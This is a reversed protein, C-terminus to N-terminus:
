HFKFMYTSSETYLVTIWFFQLSSNLSHLSVLSSLQLYPMTVDQHTTNKCDESGGISIQNCCNSKGANSNWAIYLCTLPTSTLTFLEIIKTNTTLQYV